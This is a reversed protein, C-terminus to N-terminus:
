DPQARLAAPSAREFPDLPPHKRHKFPFDSTFTYRLNGARTAIVHGLELSFTAPIPIAGPHNKYENTVVTPRGHATLVHDVVDTSYFARIETIASNLDSAQRRLAAESISRLDLWVAIPLGALLVVVLLILVRGNARADM